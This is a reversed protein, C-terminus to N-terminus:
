GDSSSKVLSTARLKQDMFVEGGVGDQGTTQWLNLAVPLVYQDDGAEVFRSIKEIAKNRRLLLLRQEKHQDNVSSLASVGFTIVFDAFIQSLVENLCQPRATLEM